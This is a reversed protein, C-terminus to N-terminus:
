ENQWHIEDRSKVWIVGDVVKPAPEGELRPQELKGEQLLQKLIDFSAGPHGVWPHDPSSYVRWTQEWDDDTQNNTSCIIVDVDEIKREGTCIQLVCKALSCGIKKM